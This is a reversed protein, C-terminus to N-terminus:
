TDATAAGISVGEASHLEGPPRRLAARPSKTEDVAAQALSDKLLGIIDVLHTVRHTTGLSERRPLDERPGNVWEDNYRRHVDDETCSSCTGRLPLRPEPLDM